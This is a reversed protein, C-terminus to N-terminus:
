GGKVRNLLGVMDNRAESAVGDARQVRGIAKASLETLMEKLRENEKVVVDVNEFKKAMSKYEEAMQAMIQQAQELQKQMEQIIQKTQDHKSIESMLEARNNIMGDPLMKFYVSPPVSQTQMALGVMEISQVENFAPAAGVKIDIYVDEGLYKTGDFKYDGTIEDMVSGHEVIKFEENDYYFKSFLLIIEALERVFEEFIVAIDSTNQRARELLMETQKGSQGSYDAQGIMVNTAGSVSKLVNMLNTSYNLADTPINNVPLRGFANQWNEAPSIDLEIVQGSETTLEQDGLVGKRLVFGGLINDQVGKDYASFHQNISKQADIHELTGPIGYFCNDREDLVFSAFPFLSFAEKEYKDNKREEHLGTSSVAQKSSGKYFPNLATAKQLVVDECTKIFFVEGEHNRYFKTFVNVFQEKVDGEMDKQTGSEYNVDSGKINTKYKENIANAKERTVYIVWEQEQVDQIYPHSVVFRRVDLTEMKLRGGSKSFLDRKDADWYIYVLGTGKKYADLITKIYKKRVKLRGFEFKLFDQIKRIDQTVNTNVLFGYENQMIGSTKVKAIQKIINLVIKPFDQTMAANSWQKGEYFNISRKIDDDLKLASKFSRGNEFEEKIQRALKVDKEDM